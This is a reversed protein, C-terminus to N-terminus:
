GVANYGNRLGGGAFLHTDKQSEGEENCADERRTRPVRLPGSSETRRPIKTGREKDLRARGWFYSHGMEMIQWGPEIVKVVGSNTDRFV